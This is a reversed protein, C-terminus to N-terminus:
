SRALVRFLHRLEPEVDQPSAVTRAVEAKLQARYRARLRSVAVKIAAETMGLRAGLEAYPQNERSGVLCPKLADFLVTKGARDYEARLSLLVQDLLTLAWQREFLQEPTTTTAPERAHRTETSDVPLPLPRLGGGRKQARLKDWENALFRNLVMLLFSRFRGKAPEVADLWRHELLRAFFEQTLDEADQPGHGRRRIYAHLPYWYTRCLNELAAVADTSDRGGANLVVSWHTTAFYEKPKGTENSTSGSGM